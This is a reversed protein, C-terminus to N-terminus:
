VDADLVAKIAKKLTDIKAPDDPTSDKIFPLMFGAKLGIQGLCKIPDLKREAIISEAKLKLDYLIGM